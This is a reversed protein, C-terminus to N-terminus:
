RGNDGELDLEGQRHSAGQLDLLMVGAKSYDFGERYIAQLGRLAAQVIAATDASPLSVRLWWSAIELATPYLTRFLFPWITFDGSSSSASTIPAM